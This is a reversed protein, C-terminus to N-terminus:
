VGSPTLSFQVLGAIPLILHRQTPLGKYECDHEAGRDSGNGRRPFRNRFIVTGESDPFLLEPEALDTELFTLEPPQYGTLLNYNM